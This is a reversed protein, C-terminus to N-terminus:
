VSHNNKKVSLIFDECISIISLIIGICAIIIFMIAIPMIGEFKWVTIFNNKEGVVTLDSIIAGACLIAIGIFGTSMMSTGLILKKM